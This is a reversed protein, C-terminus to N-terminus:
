KKSLLNNKLVIFEDSLYFAFLSAFRIALDQHIFIDEEDSKQLLFESLGYREVVSLESAYTKSSLFIARIASKMDDCFLLGARDATLQLIRSVALLEQEKQVKEDKKTAKKYINVAQTTTTIVEQSKSTVISIKESKQLLQALSNLKGIYNLSKGLFGVVPLISIVAEFVFTGKHYAGRWVDTSTVRSHKFYLHALEVGVVFKLENYTLYYPSEEDLHEGGIILFPPNGEFSTIGISKDGRAIYTEVGVLNLAVKIDTVINNIEPYNKTTLPESYSKVISYDPIEVKALWTQISSFSGGKRAFPHKINEEITTDKLQNFKLDKYEVNPEKLIESNLLDYLCQTRQKLQNEDNSIELLQALREKQLPQFMALQQVVSCTKENAQAKALLELLVVRLVQGSANGTIDLNKPPLLESLTEDPLDKLRVEIIKVAESNENCRLLHKCFEIDFIILNIKDKEKKIIQERVKKHFNLFKEFQEEQEAIKSLIQIIAFSDITSINWKESWIILENGINDQEFMRKIIDLLQDDDTYKKIVEKRSEDSFEIYLSSFEDIVNQRREKLIDLLKKSYNNSNKDTKDIIWNLRAFEYIRNESEINVFDSIELFQKKNSINTLWEYDSIQITNRGIENKAIMQSGSLDFDYKIDYNANFGVLSCSINTLLFTWKFNETKIESDPLKKITSISLNALLIENEEKSCLFWNKEKVTMPEIYRNDQSSFFFDECFYTSIIHNNIFDSIEIEYSDQILKSISFKSSDKNWNDLWSQPKIDYLIINKQMLLYLYFTGSIGIVSKIGKTQNYKYTKIGDIDSIEIKLNLKEKLFLELEKIFLECNFNDPILFFQSNILINHKIFKDQDELVVKNSNEDISYKDFLHKKSEEITKLIKRM